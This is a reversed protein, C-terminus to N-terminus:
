LGCSKMNFQNDGQILPFVGSSCFGLYILVCINVAGVHIQDSELDANDVVYKNQGRPKQTPVASM